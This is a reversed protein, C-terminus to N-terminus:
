CGVLAADVLEEAVDALELGVEIERVEEVAVAGLLAVGGDHAHHHPLVDAVVHVAWVVVEALLIGGVDDM